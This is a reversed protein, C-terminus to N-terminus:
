NGEEDEGPGGPPCYSGERASFNYSLSTLDSTHSVLSVQPLSLTRKAELIRTQGM